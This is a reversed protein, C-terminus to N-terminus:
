SAAPTTAISWSRAGIVKRPWELWQLMEPTTALLQECATLLWKPWNGVWWVPRAQALLAAWHCLIICAVPNQALILGVFHDEVTAAWNLLLSYEDSELSAHRVRLSAVHLGSVAVACVERDQANLIWETLEMLGLIEPITTDKARLDLAEFDDGKALDIVRACARTDKIQAWFPMVVMRVGALLRFCHHIAAIPDEPKQLQASGLNYTFITSSMLFMPVARELIPVELHRRYSLLGRSIHSDAQALLNQRDAKPDSIAKHVASMALYGHLLFPFDFAIELFYDRWSEDEGTSVNPRMSKHCTSMWHHMLRLDPVSLDFGSGSEM